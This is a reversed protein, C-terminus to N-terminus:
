LGGRRNRTGWRHGNSGDDLYVLNREAVVRRAGHQMAHAQTDLRTAHDPDHALGAAALRRQQSDDSAPELGAGASSADQALRHALQVAVPNIGQAPFHAHQELEPGQKGVHRHKVVDGELHALMRVKRGVEHVVEDHHFQFRDAQASRRVPHGGLERAAHRPAHRQRPCHRQVRVEHEVVLGKGTEVRNRQAHDRPQDPRQVVRQPLSRDDHTVVDLFAEIDHVVHVENGGALDDGLSRRILQAPRRLRKDALEHEALRIPRYRKM